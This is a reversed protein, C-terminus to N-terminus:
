KGKATQEQDLFELARRILWVIEQNLSRRNEMAREQVQDRISDPLRISLAITKENQYLKQRPM